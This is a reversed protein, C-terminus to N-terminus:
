SPSTSARTSSPAPTPPQYGSIIDFITTKGAGNPGILGLVEGERLAFSVDDVATVGGFRKVLGEVELVPRAENM